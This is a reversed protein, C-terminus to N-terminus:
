YATGLLKGPLPNRRFSEWPQLKHDNDNNIFRDSGRILLQRTTRARFYWLWLFLEQKTWVFKLHYMPAVCVCVCLGSNPKPKMKPCIEDWKLKLEDQNLPTQNIFDGRLFTPEVVLLMQWQEMHTKQAIPQWTGELHHKVGRLTSLRAACRQVNSDSLSANTM